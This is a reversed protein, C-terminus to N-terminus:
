ISHYCKRTTQQYFVFSIFLNAWSLSRQTIVGPSPNFQCPCKAATQKTESNTAVAEALVQFGIHYGGMAVQSWSQPQAFQLHSHFVYLHCAFVWPSFVFRLIIYWGKVLFLYIFFGNEAKCLSSQCSNWALQGFHFSSSKLGTLNGHGCTGSRFGAVLTLLETASFGRLQFWAQTGCGWLLPRRLKSSGSM